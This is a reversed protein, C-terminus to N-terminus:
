VTHAAIRSHASHSGVQIGHIRAGDLVRQLLLCRGSRIEYVHLAGGCGALLLESPTSPDPHPLLRLATVDGVYGGKELRVAAM